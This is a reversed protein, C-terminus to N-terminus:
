RRSAGLEDVAAAVADLDIALHDATRDPLLSWGFAGAYGRAAIDLLRAAADIDNGLYIEGILIPETVEAASSIAVWTTCPVCERRSRMHDYWHVTLYDLGLGQWMPLGDLRAGGVSVSANTHQHVEDAVLHVLERVEDAAANGSWIDWEPENFLQWTHIRSSDAHRAFLDGLVAAVQARAQQSGLWSDPIATPSPFLTLVYDIHYLEAVDLAADLDVDVEAKVATPLGHEDLVFHRPGDTFVWWRVLEIGSARAATFADALVLQTAESSAGGADGCGFDCGWEVWPLNAGVLFRESGRWSILPGPAPQEAVTSTSPTATPAPPTTSMAPMTSTSTAPVSTRLDALEPSGSGDACAAAPLGLAVLL